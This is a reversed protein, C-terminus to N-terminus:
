LHAQLQQRLRHQNGVKRQAPSLTLRGPSSPVTRRSRQDALNVPRLTRGLPFATFCDQWCSWVTSLSLLAREECRNTYRTPHLRLSWQLRLRARTDPGHIREYTDVIEPAAPEMGTRSSSLVRRLYLHNLYRCRSKVSMLRSLGYSGYDM